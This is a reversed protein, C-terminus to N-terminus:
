PFTSDVTQDKHKKKYKTNRYKTNQTKISTHQLTVIPLRSNPSFNLRNNPRGGALCENEGSRYNRIGITPFNKCIEYDDGHDDDHHHDHDHFQDDDHYQTTTPTPINTHRCHWSM